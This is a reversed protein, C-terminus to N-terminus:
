SHITKGNKRLYKEKEEETLKQLTIKDKEISMKFIDNKKIEKCIKIPLTIVLSSTAPTPNWAKRYVIEM